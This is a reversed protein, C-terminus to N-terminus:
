PPLSNLIAVRKQIRCIPGTIRWPSLQIHVGVLVYTPLYVVANSHIRVHISVRTLLHHIITPSNSPRFFPNLRELFAM